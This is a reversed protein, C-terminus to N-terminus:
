NKFQLSGFGQNKFRGIGYKAIGLMRSEEKQIPEEFLLKLTGSLGEFKLPKNNKNSWARMITHFANGSVKKVKLYKNSKFFQWYRENISNVLKKKFNDELISTYIKGNDELILIPFIELEIEKKDEFIKAKEDLIENIWKNFDYEKIEIIKGRGYGKTCMGGWGAFALTARIAEKIYEAFKVSPGTLIIEFKFITNPAIYEISIPGLSVGNTISDRSIFLLREIEIKEFVLSTIVLKPTGKLEDNNEIGYLNYFPCENKENCEKCELKYPFTPCYIKLLYNLIPGRIARGWLFKQCYLYNSYQRRGIFWPSTTIGKFHINLLEM